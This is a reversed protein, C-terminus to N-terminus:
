AADQMRGTQVSWVATATMILLDSCGWLVFMLLAVAGGNAQVSGMLLRTVMGAVVGGIVPSIIAVVVLFWKSRVCLDPRLGRALWLGFVPAAGQSILMGAACTILITMGVPSLMPGRHMTAYVGVGFTCSAVWFVMFRSVILGVVLAASLKLREV